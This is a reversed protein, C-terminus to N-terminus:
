QGVCKYQASISCAPERWDVSFLQTVHITGESAAVAGTCEGYRMRIHQSRSLCSCRGTFQTNRREIAMGIVKSDGSLGLTVAKAGLSALPPTTLEKGYPIEM